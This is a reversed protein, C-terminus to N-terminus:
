EVVVFSQYSGIQSRELRHGSIGLVEEFAITEGPWLDHNLQDFVIVAGKPMRPLMLKLCERTPEYLDLDFYALSVITAPHQKLYEALTEGVDGKVIEYKKIHSIPSESEHFRLIQDLFEEYGQSVSYAGPQAHRSTGDEKSVSPFGSFSDFGV